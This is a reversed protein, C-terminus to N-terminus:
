VTAGGEFLASLLRPSWFFHPLLLESFAYSYVVMPPKQIFAHQYPAVGQILLHASYAYEGEDRGLPADYNNWRLALFLVALGLIGLWQSWHLNQINRKIIGTM